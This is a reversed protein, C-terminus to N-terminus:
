QCIIMMMDDETNSCDAESSSPQSSSADHQDEIVDYVHNRMYQIFEDEEINTTEMYHDYLNPYFSIIFYKSLSTMPNRIDHQTIDFSLIHHLKQRLLTIHEQFFIAEDIPLDIVAHLLNGM